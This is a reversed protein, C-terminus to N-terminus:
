PFEGLLHLQVLAQWYQMQWSLLPEVEAGFRM